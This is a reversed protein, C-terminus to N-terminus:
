QLFSHIVSTFPLERAYKTRLYFIKAAAKLFVKWGLVKWGLPAQTACDTLRGVEALDRDRPGHTRARHQARPQHSLPQLRNGIRHRERERGRGREHETERQGLFLYFINFFFKFFFFLFLMLIMPTGSSLSLSIPTSPNHSCIMASFKGLSPLSM